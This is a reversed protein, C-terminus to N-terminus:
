IGCFNEDTDFEDQFESLMMQDIHDQAIDGHIQFKPEQNMKKLEERISNINRILMKLANKAHQETMDDVSMVKGDKTTWKVEQKMKNKILLKM